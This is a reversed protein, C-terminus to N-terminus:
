YMNLSSGTAAEMCFVDSCVWSNTQVCPHERVWNVRCMEGDDFIISADRQLPKVLRGQFYLSVTSVYLFLVYKGELDEASHEALVHKSRVPNVRYCAKCQRCCDQGCCVSALSQLLGVASGLADTHSIPQRGIPMDYFM